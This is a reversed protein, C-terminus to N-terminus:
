HAHTDWYFVREHVQDRDVNFKRIAPSFSHPTPIVKTSSLLPANYTFDSTFPPEAANDPCIWTAADAEIPCAAKKGKAQKKAPQLRKTQLSYFCRTNYLGPLFRHIGTPDRLFM